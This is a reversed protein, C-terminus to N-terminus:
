RTLGLGHGIKTANEKTLQKIKETKHICSYLIELQKNKFTRGNPNKHNKKPNILQNHSIMMSAV